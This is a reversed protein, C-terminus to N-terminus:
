KATLSILAKAHLEASERDLHILGASLRYNDVDNGMWRSFSAGGENYIAGTNVYFYEDYEELPERVPEPVDINGIRITRPKLRYTCKEHFAFSDPISCWSGDPYKLEFYEWPRDTEQALKAYEMMLDAHIHKSIEINGSTYHPPNNVNDSDVLDWNERIWYDKTTFKRENGNDVFKVTIENGDIDTVIGDWKDVKHVLKDGIKFEHIYKNM